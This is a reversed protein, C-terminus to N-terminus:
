GCERSLVLRGKHLRYAGHPEIIPDGKQWPRRNSASVNNTRISGFTYQSMLADGPRSPLAGSGTIIFTGQQQSNARAICSNAILNGTDIVNEPLESLSNQVFSTDPLSITGSVAGSANIDVRNNGDLTSPDTGAQAPEYNQGFFAPTNFSVDGGQGDRAFALIDSDGLAIISNATLTIDGGGGAGNEVNTTIDSNGFLRINAAKISITGGSSQLASTTIRSDNASFIGGSTITINGAKGASDSQSEIYANSSLSIQKAKININGANGNGSTGTSLGGDGVMSLSGTTIDINGASGTTGNELDNFVGTFKGSSGSIKFEDNVKIITNGANGVGAPKGDDVRRVFANIQGENTLSLSRANINIDGGNGVAGAGVISSIYGSDINIAERANITVGGANGKGFTSSNLRANGTMLLSGTTIDIKGASGTTGSELDNFIGSLKGSSGDIKFEDNVKIITNGANGVGASKGNDAKRVFANIQGGNTLSLSGATIKIDGGN